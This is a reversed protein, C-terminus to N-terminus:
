RASRAPVDRRKRVGIRVALLIAVCVAIVSLMFGAPGGPTLWALSAFTSVGTLTAYRLGTRYRRYSITHRPGPHPSVREAVFIFTGYWALLTLGILINM